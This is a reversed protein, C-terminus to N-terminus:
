GRELLAALQKVLPPLDDEVITWLIDFDVEDYDHILRNRLGTIERWPIEPHDACFAQPLHAAAEGIVEVLRLALNLLRDTDLDERSHNAALAVAESAHDFFCTTYVCWPIPQQSM